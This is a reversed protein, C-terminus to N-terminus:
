LFLNCNYKNCKKIQYNGILDMDGQPIFDIASVLAIAIVMGFIILFIFKNNEM